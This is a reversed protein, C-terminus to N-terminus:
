SCNDFGAYTSYGERVVALVQPCCLQQVADACLTFPMLTATINTRYLQLVM